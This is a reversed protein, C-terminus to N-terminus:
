LRFVLSGYIDSDPLTAKCAITAGKVMCLIGATVERQGDSFITCLSVDLSAVM